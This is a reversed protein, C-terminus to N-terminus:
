QTCSLFAVEPDPAPLVVAFELCSHQGAHRIDLSILASLRESMQVCYYACACVIVQVGRGERARCRVKIPQQCSMPHACACLLLCMKDDAFPKQWTQLFVSAAGTAIPSM